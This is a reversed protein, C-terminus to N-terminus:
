DLGGLGPSVFPPRDDNMPGVPVQGQLRAPLAGPMRARVNNILDETAPKVGELPSFYQPPPAQL